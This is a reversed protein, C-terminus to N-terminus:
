NLWSMACHLWNKLLLFSSSVFGVASIQESWSKLFEIWRREFNTLFGYPQFVTPSTQAYVDGHTFINQGRLFRFATPGQEVETITCFQYFCCRQENMVENGRDTDFFTLKPDTYGLKALMCLVSSNKKVLYLSSDSKATEKGFRRSHSWGRGWRRRTKEVSNDPACPGTTQFKNVATSVQRCVVGCYQDTESASRYGGSSRDSSTM